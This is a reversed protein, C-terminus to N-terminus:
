SGDYDFGEWIDGDFVQPGLSHTDYFRKIRQMEYSVERRTAHEGLWNVARIAEATSMNWKFWRYITNLQADTPEDSWAM